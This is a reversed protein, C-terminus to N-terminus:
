SILVFYQPCLPCQMVRACSNKHSKSNFFVSVFTRHLLSSKAQAVTFVFLIICLIQDSILKHKIKEKSAKYIPVFIICSTRIPKTVVGRRGQYEWSSKTFSVFNVQFRRSSPFFFKCPLKLCLFGKFLASKPVQFYFMPKLCRFIIM